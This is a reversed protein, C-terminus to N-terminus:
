AVSGAAEVEHAKVAGANGSAIAPLVHRSLEELVEGAPRQGYKLNLAVHNVGARRLLLLLVRLAGRGLRYGLHIPTPPLSPDTALDIYLSQSFPLFQGPRVREVAERWQGVVTEQLNAPRPYSMWGHANAAIWDLDQQSRGTVILPLEGTTPKPVLDVGQMSGFLGDDKPYHESWARKMVRVSERFVAGRADLAQGFAPFESPRDGSAIGLVLRGGSLQDVSAAEKATHLPHRLPLIVAATGLAITRTHAAIYGLYVFTDFIQGIDGFSPDRLPVDRFWLADFGGAEALQALEVQRAMTPTDGQFAEIPFMVGLTMSSPQYLRRYADHETAPRQESVSLM